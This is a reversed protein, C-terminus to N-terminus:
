PYQPGIQNQVFVVMVASFAATATFIEVRSSSSSLLVLGVAFIATFLAILGLVLGMSHVRALVTIAVTPLLCAAVTTMLSTIRVIWEGSYVNLNAKISKESSGSNNSINSSINSHNSESSYNSLTPSLPAISSSVSSRKELDPDPRKPSFLSLLHHWLSFPFLWVPVLYHKRVHAYFPIFSQKVWQTLGDPKNGKHPVILHEQFVKEIPKREGDPSVFFGTCLGWLLQPLEKQKASEESIDGWTQAGTGTLGEMLCIKICDRLTKINCNDAERLAEVKSFQLLAANYKEQTARIKEIIGWQKPPTEGNRIAKDRALILLQVNASYLPLKSDEENRFDEWEAKHLMKRLHILEAQYYLLSKISLDTFTPFAELDPKEAIIKALLPYGPVPLNVNEAVDDTPTPTRTPAQSQVGLSSPTRHVGRNMM